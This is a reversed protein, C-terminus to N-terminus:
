FNERVVFRGDYTWRQWPCDPMAMEQGREPVEVWVDMFATEDYSIWVRSQPPGFTRAQYFASRGTTVRREYTELAKAVSRFEEIEGRPDALGPGHDNEHFIAFLREGPAMRDTPEGM